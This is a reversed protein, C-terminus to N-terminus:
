RKGLNNLTGDLAKSIKEFAEGISSNNSIKAKSLLARVEDVKQGVEEKHAPGMTFDLMGFHLRDIDPYRLGSFVIQEKLKKVNFVDSKGCLAIFHIFFDNGITMVSGFDLEIDEDKDDTLYKELVVIFLDKATDETILVNSIEQQVSIKKM